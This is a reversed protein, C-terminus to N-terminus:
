LQLPALVVISLSPKTLNASVLGAARDSSKLLTSTLAHSFSSSQWTSFSGASVVRLCAAAFGPSAEVAINFKPSRAAAGLAVDQAVRAQALPRRPFETANM